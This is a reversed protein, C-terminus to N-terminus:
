SFTVKRGARLEKAIYKFAPDEISMYEDFNDLLHMASSDLEYTVSFDSTSVEWRGDEPDDDPTDGRHTTEIERFINPVNIGLPNVQRLNPDMLLAPEDLTVIIHGGAEDGLRAARAASEVQEDTLFRRMKEGMVVSRDSIHDNVGISVPRPVLQYGLYKGVGCLMAAAEACKTDTGFYDGVTKFAEHLVEISVRPVPANQKLKNRKGKGM